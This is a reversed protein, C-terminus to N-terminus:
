INKEGSARSRTSENFAEFIPAAVSELQNDLWQLINAAVVEGSPTTISEVLFGLVKENAKDQITPDLIINSEKVAEGNSEQAQRLSIPTLSFSRSLVANVEKKESWLLERRKLKIIYGNTATVILDNPGEM